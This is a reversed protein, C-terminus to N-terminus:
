SNPGCNSRNVRCQYKMRSHITRNGIWTRLFSGSQNVLQRNQSPIAGMPGDFKCYQFFHKVTNCLSLLMGEIKTPVSSESQPPAVCIFNSCDAVSSDTDSLRMRTFAIQRSLPSRTESDRSEAM